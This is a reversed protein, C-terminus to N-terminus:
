REKVYPIGSAKPPIARGVFGALLFVTLAYPLMQIFQVPITGLGPLAVGQLRVQIADTFAFLLCAFLTPVPRWKGFILAALALYGSGATMNRVFGGGQATSLYAGAVGTLVGCIVMARYRMAAVDIGATDVAAPSEGVARLRLGFRTRYLVWASLPVLLATAYVIVNHGSVIGGYLPGLVPVGDLSRAFPLAIPGFRSGQELLPTQGGQSFWAFALTPALGAVLINIAMGSVVQNGAHTVCAYAHVMALAVAAGVAATLGIVPSGTVSAAAAAAFAGALMKGELGIDVVGSREAFLGALAALVLPTAVRLTSALVSILIDFGEM